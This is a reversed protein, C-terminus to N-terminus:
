GLVENMFDFVFVILVQEELKTPDLLVYGSEALGCCIAVACILIIYDALM